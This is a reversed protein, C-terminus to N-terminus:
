AGATRRSSRRRGSSSPPAKGAPSARRVNSRAGRAPATARKQKYAHAVARRWSRFLLRAERLLQPSLRKITRVDLASKGRGRRRIEATLREVRAARRAARVDQVGAAAYARKFTGFHRYIAGELSGAARLRGKTLPGTAALERLEALVDRRSYTARKKRRPWGPAIGAERAAAEGNEFRERISSGHPPLDYLEGLTLEPREHSLERLWDLLEDRSVSRRVAIDDPDFGAAELAASWTGFCNTGARRLDPDVRSFALDRGRKAASQIAAVVDAKSWRREWEKPEPEALGAARRANAIGRFHRWCASLLDNRGADRLGPTTLRVGRRDLAQLEAIIASRTLRRPQTRRPLGAKTLANRFSRFSAVAAAHLEPHDRSVRQAILPGEQRQALARLRSLIENETM